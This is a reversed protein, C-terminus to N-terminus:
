DLVLMIEDVEQPCLTSQHEVTVGNEWSAGHGKLSYAWIFRGKPQKQQFNDAVFFFAGIGLVFM